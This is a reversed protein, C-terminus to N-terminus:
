RCLRWLPSCLPGSWLCCRKQSEYRSLIEELCAQLIRWVICASDQRVICRRIACHLLQERSALGMCGLGQVLVAGDLLYSLLRSGRRLGSPTGPLITRRKQISRIRGKFDRKRFPLLSVAQGRLSGTLRRDREMMMEDRCEVDTNLCLHVVAPEGLISATALRSDVHQAWISVALVKLPGQWREHSKQPRQLWNWHRCVHGDAPWLPAPGAACRESLPM